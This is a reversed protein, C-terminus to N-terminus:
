MQNGVTAKGNIFPHGKWLVRGWTKIAVKIAKERYAKRGKSFFAALSLGLFPILPLLAAMTLMVLKAPEM